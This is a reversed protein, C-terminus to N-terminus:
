STYSTFVLLVGEMAVDVAIIRVFFSSPSVRLFIIPLRRRNKRGHM